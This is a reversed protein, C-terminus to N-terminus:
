GQQPNKGFNPNEKKLKEYITEATDRSFDLTEGITSLFIGMKPCEIVCSFEKKGGYFSQRKLRTVGQGFEVEFEKCIMENIYLDCAINWLEPNRKGMRVSHQYVIHLMEHILAFSTEGLTLDALFRPNYYFTTETVWMTPIDVAPIKPIVEFMWSYYPSLLMLNANTETLKEQAAKNYESNYCADLDYIRIFPLFRDRGEGFVGLGGTIAQIAAEQENEKKIEAAVAEAQAKKRKVTESDEIASQYTEVKKAERKIVKPFEGSKARVNINGSNETYLMWNTQRIKRNEGMQVLMSKSVNRYNGNQMCIGFGLTEDKDNVVKYLITVGNKGDLTGGSVGLMPYAGFAGQTLKLKGNEVVANEIKGGKNLNAIIDETPIDRLMYETGKADKLIFVRYKLGKEYTAVIYQLM